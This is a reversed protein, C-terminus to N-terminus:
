LAFFGAEAMSRLAGEMRPSLLARLREPETVKNAGEAVQLKGEQAARILEAMIEEHTRTGDCAAIVYRSLVDAATSHHVRNTILRAHLAQYRALSGVEPKDPVDLRTGVADAHLEVFGKVVLSLLNNQLTAEDIVDRDTGVAGLFARSRSRAGELLDRYSLISAGRSEVLVALVAKVFPDSSSIQTGQLTSFAVPTGAVFDVPGKASTLLSRYAFRAFDAPALNRKLEVKSRCLLTQRFARNRLFDMYQEQAVIHNNLLALTERVKDPFNGALMESVNPESLYQLGHRGARSVFDFFYFPTNEDELLDHVIFNDPQANMAALESKLLMGYANNDTPVSEALFALLARAQQVKVKADPFGRTHFMMMDRLSRRMNGGPHANYSIYAVGNETLHEACIAFIKERVSEPVWSFVGHAIIYDFKGETTPFELINQVRLEVNALGVAGLAQRGAEIQVKSTDLGFFTAEPLQQAMPLLNAGDACGLELVRATKPSPAAVGFLRAMAALRNPHTQPFAASPYPAKDYPTDSDSIPSIASTPM